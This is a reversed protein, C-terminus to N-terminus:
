CGCLTICGPEGSCESRCAKDCNSSSTSSATTSALPTCRGEAIRACVGLASQDALLAKADACSAALGIPCLADNCLCELDIANGSIRYGCGPYQDTDVPVSPCSSIGACLAIGTV